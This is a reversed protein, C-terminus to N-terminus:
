LKFGRASLFLALAQTARSLHTKVSGSSVGMAKATEETDMGEWHRLLFAERQRGPLDRLAEEIAALTRSRDLEDEPSPNPESLGSDFALAQAFDLGDADERDWDGHLINIQGLTKAQRFHDNLRNQLIRGFLAPLEQAPKGAYKECLKAMADQVADLAAHEDRLAYLAMKFARAQRSRLFADLEQASAM